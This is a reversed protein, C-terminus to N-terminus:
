VASQLAIKTDTIRGEIDAANASLSLLSLACAASLPALKFVSKHNGFM